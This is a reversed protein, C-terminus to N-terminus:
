CQRERLIKKLHLPDTELIKIFGAKKFIKLSAINSKKVIASLSVLNKWSEQIKKDGLQLILSGLGQGRNKPDISFSIQADFKNREFRIQGIPVGICNELIFIRCAQYDKLKSQYWQEHTDWPIPNVALSNLRTQEDNAWIFLTKCDGIDADRLVFNKNDHSRM